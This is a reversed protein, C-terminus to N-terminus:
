RPRISGGKGNPYAWASVPRKVPKKNKTATVQKGITKGMKINAKWAKIFTNPNPTLPGNMKGGSM